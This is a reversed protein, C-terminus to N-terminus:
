QDRNVGRGPRPMIVPCSLFPFAVGRRFPPALTGPARALDSPPDGTARGSSMQLSKYLPNIRATAINNNICPCAFSSALCDGSSGTTRCIRIIIMWFASHSHTEDPFIKRSEPFKKHSFEIGRFIKKRLLQTNWRPIQFVEWTGAAFIKERSRSFGDSIKFIRELVLSCMLFNKRLPCPMGHSFKFFVELGREIWLGIQSLWSDRKSM